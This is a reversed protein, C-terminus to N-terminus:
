LDTYTGDGDKGSDPTDKPISRPAPAESEPGERFGRLFDEMKDIQEQVWPKAQAYGAEAECTARRGACRTVCGARAAESEQGSTCADVCAGYARACSELSQEAGQAPLALMLAVAAVSPLLLRPM